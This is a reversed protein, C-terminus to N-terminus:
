GAKYASTATIAGCLGWNKSKPAVKGKGTLWTNNYRSWQVGNPGGWTLRTRCYITKGDLQVATTIGEGTRSLSGSFGKRGFTGTFSDDYNLNLTTKTRYVSGKMRLVDFGSGALKIARAKKGQCKGSVKYSGNWVTPKFKCTSYSTAKTPEPLAVAQSSSPALVLLGASSGLALAASIVSSKKM